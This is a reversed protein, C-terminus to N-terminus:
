PHDDFISPKVFCDAAISLFLCFSSANLCSCSRNCCSNLSTGDAITGVKALATEYDMAAKVPGAYVAAAVGGIVGLTGALQAKTQGISEKVKQQEENLRQLREQSSKLNDYSKQLRENEGTLNDTNM